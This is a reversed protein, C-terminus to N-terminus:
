RDFSGLSSHIAIAQALKSRNYRDHLGTVVITAKAMHVRQFSREWLSFSIFSTIDCVAFASAILRENTDNRKPNAAAIAYKWGLRQAGM